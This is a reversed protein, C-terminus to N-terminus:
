NTKFATSVARSPSADLRASLISEEKKSASLRQAGVGKHRHMLLNFTIDPHPLRKRISGLGGRGM